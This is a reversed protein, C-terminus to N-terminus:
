RFYESLRKGNAILVVACILSIFFDKWTDSQIGYVTSFFTGLLSYILHFFAWAFISGIVLLAGAIKTDGDFQINIM